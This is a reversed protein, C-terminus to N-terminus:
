TSRCCSGSCRSSIRISATRRSFLREGQEATLIELRTARKLVEATGVALLEPKANAHALQLFQAIFEVDLLGGRMIKLIERDGDGKEQAILERMDRIAAAVAPKDRPQALVAAVERTVNEVLSADGCIARARTLAMHEWTEAEGRQYAIM